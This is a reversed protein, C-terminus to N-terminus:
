PVYESLKDHTTVDALFDCAILKLRFTTKDKPFANADLSRFSCTYRIRYLGADTQAYLVENEQIAQIVPVAMGPKVEVQVSKTAQEVVVSLISHQGSDTGDGYFLWDFGRITNM